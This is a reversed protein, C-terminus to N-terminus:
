NIVPLSLLSKVHAAAILRENNYSDRLLNWAVHFNQQTVPLNQILQHVENTVSSLLYHFKKVDDLAQNSIILSNFTDHFHKFETIKGGFKPIEITPLKIKPVLCNGYDHTARHKQLEASSIDRVRRDESIMRDIRAKLECHTETVAERDLEHQQM